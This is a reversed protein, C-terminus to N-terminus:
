KGPNDSSSFLRHAKLNMDQVRERDAELPSAKFVILGKINKM